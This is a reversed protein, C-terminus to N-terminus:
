DVTPKPDRPAIMPGEKIVAEIGIKSGRFHCFLPLLLQHRYSSLQHHQSQILTNFDLVEAVLNDPLTKIEQFTIFDLAECVLTDPLTQIEEM